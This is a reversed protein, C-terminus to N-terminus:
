LIHWLEPLEEEYMSIILYRIKRLESQVEPHEDAILPRLGSLIERISDLEMGNIFLGNINHYEEWQTELEDFTSLAQRTDGANVAETVADVLYVYEACQKQTEILAFICLLILSLLVWISVKCRNM